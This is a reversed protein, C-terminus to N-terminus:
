RIRVQLTRVAASSLRDRSIHEAHEVCCTRGVGVLAIGIGTNFNTGTGSVSMAGVGVGTRGPLRYLSAIAHITAPQAGASCDQLASLAAM